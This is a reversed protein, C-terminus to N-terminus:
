ISMVEAKTVHDRIFCHHGSLLLFDWRLSTARLEADGAGGGIFKDATWV